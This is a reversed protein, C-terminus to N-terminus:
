EEVYEKNKKAISILNTVFEKLSMHELPVSCKSSTKKLKFALVIIRLTEGKVSTFCYGLSNYGGEKMQEEYQEIKIKLGEDLASEMGPYMPAILNSLGDLGGLMQIIHEMDM